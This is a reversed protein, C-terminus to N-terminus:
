KSANEQVEQIRARNIENLLQQNEPLLHNLSQM